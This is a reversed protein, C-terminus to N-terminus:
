GLKTCIEHIRYRFNLTCQLQFTVQVRPDVEDNCKDIDSVDSSVSSQTKTAM